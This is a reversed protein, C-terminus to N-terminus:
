LYKSLTLLQCIYIHVRFGVPLPTMESDDPGNYWVHGLSVKHPGISSRVERDQNGTEPGAREEGAYHDDRTVLYANRWWSCAHFM